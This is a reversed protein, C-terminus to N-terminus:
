IFRCCICKAAWPSNNTLCCILVTAIWTGKYEDMTPNGTMRYLYTHMLWDQQIAQLSRKTIWPLQLSGLVRFYKIQCVDNTNITCVYISPESCASAIVPVALTRRISVLTLSVLSASPSYLSNLQVLSLQFGSNLWVFPLKWRKPEALWWVRPQLSWLM